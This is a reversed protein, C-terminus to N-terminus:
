RDRYIVNMTALWLYRIYHIFQLFPTSFHPCPITGMGLIFASTKANDTCPRLHRLLMRVDGGRRKSGEDKQKNNTKFSM